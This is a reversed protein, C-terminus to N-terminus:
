RVVKHEKKTEVPWIIKVRSDTENISYSLQHTKLAICNLDSNAGGFCLPEGGGSPSGLLRLVESNNRQPRSSVRKLHHGASHIAPHVNLVDQRRVHQTLEHKRRRM